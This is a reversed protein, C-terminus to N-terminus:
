ESKRNKIRLIVFPVSMISFLLISLIFISLGLSMEIMFFSLIIILLNVFYIILSIKKHGFGLDLLIHHIHTRDPHLPNRGNFVRMFFVRFTDYLPVSLIAITVFPGKRVFMIDETIYVGINIVKIALISLILGILLSGTDGM